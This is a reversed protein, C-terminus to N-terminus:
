LSVVPGGEADVTMDTIDPPNAGSELEPGATDEGALYRRETWLEHVLMRTYDYCVYVTDGLGIGKERPFRVRAGSSLRITLKTGRSIVIGRLSEM